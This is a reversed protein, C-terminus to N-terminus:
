HLASSLAHLQDEALHQTNTHCHTTSHTPRSFLLTPSSHLAFSVFVHPLSFLFSSLLSLFSSFSFRPFLHHLFSSLLHTPFFFLLSTLFLLSWPFSSSLLFSSHLSSFSFLLLFTMGIVVAKQMNSVQPGDM